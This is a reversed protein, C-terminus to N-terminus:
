RRRAIPNRDLRAASRRPRPRRVVPRDVGADLSQVRELGRVHLYWAYVCAIAAVWPLWFAVSPASGYAVVRFVPEFGAPGDFLHQTVLTLATALLISGILLTVVVAIAAWISWTVLFTGAADLAACTALFRMPEGLGGTEPMTAFFRVPDQMVERWTTVFDRTEVTDVTPGDM